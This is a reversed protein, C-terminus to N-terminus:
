LTNLSLMLLLTFLTALTFRWGLLMGSAVIPIALALISSGDLTGTAIPYIAFLSFVVLAMAVAQYYGARVLWFGILLFFPSIFLTIQEIDIIDNEVTITQVAGGQVIASIIALVLAIAIFYLLGLARQAEIP